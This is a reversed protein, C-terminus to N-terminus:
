NLNKFSIYFIFCAYKHPCQNHPTKIGTYLRTLTDLFYAEKHHFCELGQRTAKAFVGYKIATWQQERTRLVSNVADM